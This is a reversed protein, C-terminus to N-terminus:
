KTRDIGFQFYGTHCTADPWCATYDVRYLGDPAASEFTRKLTRKDSTVTTSGTGYEKGDKTISISSNLELDFNFDISVEAPPTTLTASHAPFNSVYHASKKATSFDSITIDVSSNTSSNINTTASTNVNTLNSTSSNTNARNTSASTQNTNTTSINTTQANTNSVAANTYANTITNTKTTTKEGSLWLYAAVGVIVIMIIPFLYKPM